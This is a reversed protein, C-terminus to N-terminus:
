LKRCVKAYKKMYKPIVKEWFDPGEFYAMAKQCLPEDVPLLPEGSNKGMSAIFKHKVCQLFGQLELGGECLHHKGLKKGCQQKIEKFADDVIGQIAKTTKTDKEAGLEKMVHQIIPYFVNKKAWKDYSHFHLLMM